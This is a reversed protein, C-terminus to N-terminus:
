DGLIIRLIILYIDGGNDFIKLREIEVPHKGLLNFTALTIRIKLASSLCHTEFKLGIDTEGKTELIKSLIM